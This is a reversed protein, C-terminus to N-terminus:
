ELLRLPKSNTQDLSDVLRITIPKRNIHLTALYTLLITTPRLTSSLHEVLLMLLVTTPPHISNLLVVSLMLHTTTQLLSSTSLLAVLRMSRIVPPLHSINSVPAELHMLRATIPPLKSSQDELRMLLAVTPLLNNTPIVVLHMLHILTQHATLQDGSPMLLTQPRKIRAASLMSHTATPIVVEELLMLPHIARHRNLKLLAESPMLPIAALQLNIRVESLMSIMATPLLGLKVRIVLLMLLTAQHNIPPGLLMLLIRTTPNYRIQIVSRMSSIIRPLLDPSILPIKATLIILCITPTLMWNKRHDPVTVSRCLVRSVLRVMKLIGVNTLTNLKSLNGLNISTLDTQYPYIELVMDHWLVLM